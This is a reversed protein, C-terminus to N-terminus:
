PNGRARLVTLFDANRRMPDLFVTPTAVHVYFSVHREWFPEAGLLLLRDLAERLFRAQLVSSNKCSPKKADQLQERPTYTLQCVARSNVPFNSTRTRGGWNTTRSCGGSSLRIWISVLRDPKMSWIRTRDREATSTASAHALLESIKTSSGESRGWVVGGDIRNIACSGVLGYRTTAITDVRPATSLARWRSMLSAARSPPWATRKSALENVRIPPSSPWSGCSVPLTM